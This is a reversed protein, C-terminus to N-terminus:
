CGILLVTPDINNLPKKTSTSAANIVHALTKVQDKRKLTVESFRLGNLKNVIESGIQEAVDCNIGDSESAAIGSTLCHLRPDTTDFPNFKTLFDVLKLVDDNDRRCRSKGLEAHQAVEHCYDIDAFQALAVRVRGTQHVTATWVARVSEDSGRGHTLGGSSKISRMMAQEIALDTSIGAWFKGPLM